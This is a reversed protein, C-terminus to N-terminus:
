FQIFERKPAKRTLRSFSRWTPGCTDTQRGSYPNEHFKINLVSSFRDQILSLMAHRAEPDNWVTAVTAKTNCHTSLVLIQFLILNNETHFIGTQPRPTHPLINNFRTNFYHTIRHFTNSQTLSMAQHLCNHIHHHVEPIWLFRTQKTVLQAVTPKKFAMSHLFLFWSIQFSPLLFFVTLSTVHYLGSHLSSYTEHMHLPVRTFSTCTVSM